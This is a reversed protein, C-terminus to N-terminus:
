MLQFCSILSPLPPQLTPSAQFKLKSEGANKRWMHGDVMMSEHCKHMFSKMSACLDDFIVAVFQESSPRVQELLSRYFIFNNVIVHLVLVRVVKSIFATWEESLCYSKFDDFFTPSLHAAPLHPLYKKMEFMDHTKDILAKMVPILFSYTDPTAISPNASFSCTIKYCTSHHVTCVHSYLSMRVFCHNACFTTFPPWSTVPKTLNKSPDLKFSLTFSPLPM